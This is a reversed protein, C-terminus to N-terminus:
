KKKREKLLPPINERQPPILTTIIFGHTMLFYFLFNKLSIFFIAITLNTLQPASYFLNKHHKAPSQSTFFIMINTNRIQQDKRTEEFANKFIYM